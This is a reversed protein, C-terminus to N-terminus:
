EYYHDNAWLMDGELSVHCMGVSAHNILHRLKLDSFALEAELQEQRKQLVESDFASTIYSSIMRKLDRHFQECHSDLPRCPNAGVILYGFLRAGSTLPLIVIHKARDSWGEWEVGDFREDCDIILTETGARKLDPALGEESDVPVNNAILNHGAPVGIRGELRLKSKKPGDHIRYLLAMPVDYPSTRLTALIHHSVADVTMNPVATLANLLTTRRDDLKQQTVEFMSNYFGEPAYAPGIPVFNGNFFTEERWGKREVLLSAESSYNVGAATTRCQEFYPRCEDWLEPYGQRFTSGMLKPHAKCALPAYHENYIAVLDPGRTLNTLDATYELLQSFVM